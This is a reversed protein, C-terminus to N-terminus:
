LVRRQGLAKYYILSGAEGPAATESFVFQTVVLVDEGAPGTVVTATPNGFARSGGATHMALPFM